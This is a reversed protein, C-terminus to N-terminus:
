AFSAFACLLYEFTLCVGVFGIWVWPLPKSKAHM